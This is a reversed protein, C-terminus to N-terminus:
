PLAAAPATQSQLLHDVTATVLAPADEIEVTQWFPPGAVAQSSVM